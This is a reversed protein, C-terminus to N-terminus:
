TAHSLSLAKRGKVRKVAEAGDVEPRTYQDKLQLIEIIRNVNGLRSDM